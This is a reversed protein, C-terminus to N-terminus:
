PLSFSLPPRVSRHPLPTAKYSGAINSYVHDLTKNGRTHCSVHQHFRPLVTKFNSHNFDGAVIFAAEPHTTQQKSIAAHLEKMALKANADPPTYVATVIVSTLERPLYYPRCKVMLFEVNPSCHRETIVSSQKYLHM